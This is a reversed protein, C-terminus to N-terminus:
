INNINNDIMQLTEALKICNNTMEQERDTYPNNKQNYYSYYDTNPLAQNNHKQKIKEMNAKKRNFASLFRNEDEKQMRNKNMPNPDEYAWKITLIEEGILAQDVMAEKGFEASCRHTYRIFAIGKTPIYNVDELEGWPSFHEYLIRVMDKMPNASEITKIGTVHLTRCEKTFTGIGGMDNRPTAFRARGFVDRLNEIRQCDEKTPVRHYYKCNLGESCCGKAFYLCFYAGEKEQLDAKTFGIDLAPNCRHLAPIKEREEKRDTLYKDYWINYDYNGEHYATDKRTDPVQQRAPRKMWENLQEEQIKDWILKDQLDKEEWAEEDYYDDENGQVVEPETIEQQPQLNSITSDYVQQNSISTGAPLEWVSENTFPNFYFNMEYHNDYYVQWHENINVGTEQKIEECSTEPRNLNINEYDEKKIEINNKEEVIEEVQEVKKKGKQKKTEKVADKIVKKNEEDRSRDRKKDLDEKKDKKNRRTNM